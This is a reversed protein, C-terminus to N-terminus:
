IMSIKGYLAYICCKIYCLLAYICCTKLVTRKITSFRVMYGDIFLTEDKVEMVYVQYDSSRNIEDHVSFTKTM